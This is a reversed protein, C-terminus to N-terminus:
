IVPAGIVRWQWLQLSLFLLALTFLAFHLRKFLGWGSGSWAPWHALLMIGSAIAVAWGSYHAIFMATPPYTEPMTSLDFNALGVVLLIIAILLAAVALVGLLAAAGAARAAFGFYIGRGVRRWFGLLHTLALLLAAALAALLSAPNQWWGLKELSHVGMGDALAVARGRGDRIFAIRDGSASVFVDGDLRRFYHSEGGGSVVLTEASLPTVRTFNVTSFLAAFTSFVRRNNLYTGALDSLAEVGEADAEVQLPLYEFGAVLDIVLEPLHRIPSASSTSNQSLFIGLSWEPVLVMNTLFAATGGGHGLTRVERYPRDQFGHALDAGQPRDDYARTWMQEHTQAQLLRTGELEGGNLHFRMWRAMDRATSAVGGAPWYAGIQMPGQLDLAGQSAKYGTALRARQEPDMQGPSQWTTDKMGLPDLIEQQLFDGYPRGSVNEVVLAALASAWNSYSTRAGPPYVREPQHEALLEALSRRDHDAVAFLRLTDEFGGRHHMVQRMTVPEGFAEEISFQELYNNLDADLDILGREVLMMVATWTFTKSVSGIRFLTRDPNVARGADIDALGYGRVLWLEDDHVISVTVAGLGHERQMTAILGDVYDSLAARQAADTPSALTTEEVLEALEEVAEAIPDSLVPEAEEPAQAAATVVVLLLISAFSLLFRFNCM